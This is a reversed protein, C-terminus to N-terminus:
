LSQGTEADLDDGVFVKFASRDEDNRSAHSARLGPIWLNSYSAPNRTRAFHAGRFSPTNHSQVRAKLSKVQRRTKSVFFPIAMLTRAWGLSLGAGTFKWHSSGNMSSSCSVSSSRM